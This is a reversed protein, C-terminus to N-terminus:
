EVWGWRVQIGAKECLSDVNDYGYASNNAKKYEISLTVDKYYKIGHRTITVEEFSGGLLKSFSKRFERATEAYGHNNDKCWEKYVDYVRQTTCSDSISGIPRPM